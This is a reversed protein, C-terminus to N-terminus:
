YDNVTTFEHPDGNIPTNVNTITRCGVHVDCHMCMHDCGSPKTAGLWKGMFKGGEGSTGRQPTRKRKTTAVAMGGVGGSGGLALSASLKM